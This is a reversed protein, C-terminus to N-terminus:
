GTGEMKKALESYNSKKIKRVFTKDNVLDFINSKAGGQGVPNLNINNLMKFISAADPGGQGGPMFGGPGSPFGGGGPSPYGPGGPGMGGGGSPLLGGFGGQGGGGFMNMVNSLMGSSGRGGMGGGKFIRLYNSISGFFPMKNFVEYSYPSNGQGGGLCSSCM